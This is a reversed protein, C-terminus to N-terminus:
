VLKLSNKWASDREEGSPLTSVGEEKMEKECLSELVRRAPSVWCSGFKSVVETKTKARVGFSVPFSSCHTSLDRFVVYGHPSFMVDTKGAKDGGM